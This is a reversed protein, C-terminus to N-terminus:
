SSTMLWVQGLNWKNGPRWLGWEILLAQHFKPDKTTLALKGQTHCNEIDKSCEAKAIM